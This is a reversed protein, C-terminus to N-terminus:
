VRNQWIAPDRATHFVALVLVRDEEIRYYVCYPYGTM